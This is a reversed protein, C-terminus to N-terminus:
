KSIISLLLLCTLNKYIFHYRPRTLSLLCLETYSHCIGMGEIWVLMLFIYIRCLYACYMFFIDCLVERVTQISDEWYRMLVEFLIQMSSLECLNGWFCNSFYIKWQAYGALLEGFKFSLIWLCLVGMNLTAIPLYMRWNRARTFVNCWRICNFKCFFKTMTLFERKRADWLPKGNKEIPANHSTTPTPPPPSNTLGGENKSLGSGDFTTIVVHGM